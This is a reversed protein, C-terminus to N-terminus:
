ESWGNFTFAAWYFPNAYPRDEPNGGSTVDVLAEFADQASLRIFSKYYNGLEQRTADRLWLQAERLAAPFSMGKERHNRYFREMLLATSQDDVMWLSSIVAPAGAQMFGAPLGLYEDPAQWINSIGTECASLTVLRASQLNFERIIESLKLPEDRTLYLASEMPNMWNFSGHCSFHIYSASTAKTKVTQKTAEADLLPTTSFVRAIAEAELKAKVLQSFGEYDNVGVVLAKTNSGKREVIRRHSIDLAYASPAYIIEYDDMLTRKHGSADLYWAAHLPFLQLRASPMFILRELDMAQLRKLVPEILVPWLKQSISAIATQLRKVDRTNYYEDLAWVWGPQEITGILLQHLDDLKFDELLLIHEPTLNTVGHPVIFVASGQSTFLPAILVGQPPILALISPLNLGDPMFDGENQRIVDVMTKISARQQLILINLEHDTRHSPSNEPLRMEAELEKLVQRAAYLAVLKARNSESSSNAQLDRLALTETLLRTKGHELMLLAEDYQQTQLLCFASDAFLEATEAVESQREVESYTHALLDDGTVIAFKYHALAEEWLRKEFKLQGLNREISRHIDPYALRTGTELAQQYHYISQELNDAPEGLIRYSYASALDNEIKAWEEPFAPRARVELAQQYHHIAEELNEAREGRVRASYIAGLIHQIDAWNEPFADRSYVELAHQCHFIAQELNDAHDDQMRALYIIALSYHTNAWQEPFTTRTRVELAQQFHHIAKELRDVRNGYIYIVSAYIIAL